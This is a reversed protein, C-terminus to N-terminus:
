PLAKGYGSYRKQKRTYSSTGCREKAWEVKLISNEFAIRDLISLALATEANESREFSVFGFDRFRGTVHNRPISVHTIRGFCVFIDRLDSEMVNEPLNSVRLKTKQVICKNTSDDLRSDNDTYLEKRV